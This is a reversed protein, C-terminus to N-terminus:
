QPDRILTVPAAEAHIAVVVTDAILPRYGRIGFATRDLVTTATLCLRGGSSWGSCRAQLTIPSTVGRVTLNGAVTWQDQDAPQVDTSHFRLVPHVAADLFQAGALHADRRANGTQLSTAGVRAIVRSERPDEAIDIAGSVSSFRGRVPLGLAKATFRVTTHAPDLLYRGALPRLGTPDFPIPHRM